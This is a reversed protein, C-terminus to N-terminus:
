DNDAEDGHNEGLMELVLVGPLRVFWHFSGWSRCTNCRYEGVFIQLQHEVLDHAMAGLNSMQPNGSIHTGWDYEM